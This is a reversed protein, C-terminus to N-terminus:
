SAEAVQAEPVIGKSPARAARHLFTDPKLEHVQMFGPAVLTIIKADFGSATNNNKINSQWSELAM